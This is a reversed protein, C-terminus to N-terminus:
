GDLWFLTVGWCGLLQRLLRLRVGMVECITAAFDLKPLIAIRVDGLVAESLASSIDLSFDSPTSIKVPSIVM